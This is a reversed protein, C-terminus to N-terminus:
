VEMINLHKHQLDNSIRFRQIVEKKSYDYYRMFFSKESCKIKYGGPIVSIYVDIM